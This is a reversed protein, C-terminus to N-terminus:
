AEDLKAQETMAKRKGSVERGDSLRYRNRDLAVPFDEPEEAASTTEEEEAAEEQTARAGTPGFAVPVDSVGDRVAEVGMSPQRVLEQVSVTSQSRVMAGSELLAWVANRPWQSVEEESFGTGPVAKITEGAHPGTMLHIDRPKQMVYDANM